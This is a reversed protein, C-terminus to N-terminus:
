NLISFFISEIINETKLLCVPLNKVYVFKKPVIVYKNKKIYFEDYLFSQLESAMEFAQQMMRKQEMYLEFMREFEDGGEGNLENEKEDDFDM